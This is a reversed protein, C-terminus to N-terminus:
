TSTGVLLKREDGLILNLSGIKLMILLFICYYFFAVRKDILMNKTPKLGGLTDLMSCLKDFTFRNM